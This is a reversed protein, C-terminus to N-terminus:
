FMWRPQLDHCVTQCLEIQPNPYPQAQVYGVGSPHIWHRGFSISKLSKDDKVVEFRRGVVEIGVWVGSVAFAEVVVKKLNLADSSFKFTKEFRYVVDDNFIKKRIM